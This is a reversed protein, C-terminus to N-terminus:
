ELGAVAITEEGEREWGALWMWMVMGGSCVGGGAVADEVDGFWDPRLEEGDAGGGM